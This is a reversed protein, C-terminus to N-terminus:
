LKKRKELYVHWLMYAAVTRYPRWKEAMELLADHSTDPALAFETKMSNRLAVDGIPFRDSRHLSMMMFVDSTWSGIGKVKQLANSIEDENLVHLSDLLLSGDIICNALHRTYIIKQRSVYCARMQEDDLTLLSAPTIDALKEKLKKLAALASALSVQQELIYHILTEFSAPRQWYPPYGHRSILQAFVSERQALTDCLKPLTESNFVTTTATVQQREKKIAHDEWSCGSNAKKSLHPSPM